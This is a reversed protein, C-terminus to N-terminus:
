NLNKILNEGFEIQKKYLEPLLEDKIKLIRSDKCARPIKLTGRLPFDFTFDRNSVASYFELYCYNIFEILLLYCNNPILYKIFNNLFGIEFNNNELEFVRIKLAPLNIDNIQINKDILKFINNGFKFIKIFLFQFKQNENLLKLFNNFEEILIQTPNSIKPNNIFYNIKQFLEDIIQQNPSHENCRNQIFDKILLINLLNLNQQKPINYMSVTWIAEPIHFIGIPLNSLPLYLKFDNLFTRCLLFNENVLDYNLYISKFVETISTYAPFTKKILGISPILFNLECDPSYYTLDIMKILIEQTAIEGKHFIMKKPNILILPLSALCSPPIVLSSDSLDISNILFCQSIENSITRSDRNSLKLSTLLQKKINFSM